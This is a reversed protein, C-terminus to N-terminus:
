APTPTTLVVHFTHDSLPAVRQLAEIRLARAKAEPCTEM